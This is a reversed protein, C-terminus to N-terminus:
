EAKEEAEVETFNQWLVAADYAKTSIFMEELEETTYAALWQEKSYGSDEIVSALMEDFEGEDLTIGEAKVISYLVMNMLITDYANQRIAEVSTNNSALM